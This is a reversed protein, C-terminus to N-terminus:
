VTYHANFLDHDRLMHELGELPISLLENPELKHLGGGYFRGNKEFEDPNISNLREWVSKVLAPNRFLDAYEPKPYMLLYGNTAIADSENLIVRFMKRGNEGRGMYPIVFPAKHRRECQYWPTHRSCIYTKDVHAEEGKKIYELMSPHKHAITEISDNTSFLYYTEDLAPIGNHSTIIDTKLKRPAPLIPTLYENPFQYRDKTEENIIFYSNCGTAIGRKVVFYDGITKRPQKSSTAPSPTEKLFYHTWKQSADMQKREVLFEKEPQCINNGMSFVVPTDSPASHRFFVVSSTVLADSFQLNKEHFRHIRILNVNEMLYQKVAKGYNVDMFESPILWCSLGNPELWRTSLLMFYCYLGALGSLRIGTQRKVEQQLWRKMKTDIHHHRSYPPNAILLPFHDIPEQKLFDACIVKVGYDQWLEATPAYYHPDLEFGLVGDLQKVNLMQQMASFFVGTGCAPELMKGTSASLNMQLACAVIDKALSFPTAYQGWTNRSEQSKQADLVQQLHSRKEELTANTM